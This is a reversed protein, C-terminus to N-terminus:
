LIYKSYINYYQIICHISLKLINQLNLKFNCLYHISVNCVTENVQDFQYKMAFVLCSLLSLLPILLCLHGFHSVKWQFLIGRAPGTKLIQKQEM